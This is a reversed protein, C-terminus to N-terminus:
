NKLIKETILTEEGAVQVVYMGRPLASANIRVQNLGRAANVKNTIMTRGSLDVVRITLLEPKAQNITINMM